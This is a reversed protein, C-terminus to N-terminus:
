EQFASLGPPIRRLTGQDPRRIQRRNPHSLQASPLANIEARSARAAKPPRRSDRKTRSRMPRPEPVPNPFRNPQQIRRANRHRANRYDVM